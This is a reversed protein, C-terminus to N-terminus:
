ELVDLFKLGFVVGDGQFGNQYSRVYDIRLIKFKGFGLNDLGVSLESYPKHDPTSLTHGGLILTSKLKNLLPIKNMIYGEDNYETHAEFYRNNTSNSYYPLLNFVNLYRASQGIHTQNGNFHKYDMFAINKANLFKGAKVNMGLTGKNELKLDYSLQANIHDFEYKKESAAVAKEYNLLLTPYKENRINFKGDPRSAYKNGFNIRANLTMKVLHHKEFASSTFDDPALPNNSTYLDDNNFYSFNTTNFLPKRQQYSIKGGLNVGNAVNQNYGLAASELNYLKMFNNKFSLSSISNIIKSIPENPNFQQVSSGGTAFLTAYNQNNFRHIITGMVRLRDEAFGYNLKTNISTYIGKTEQNKRNTYRFGTDFNYGQVTNFSLSGLNFLGEYSFTKKATSNSYSYGTLLKVLKFKNGKADISDLYKKSNRVKYISDKKNYDTSEEITLPIPRNSNWFATDKKNSNIEVSTIENTFTKKAFANVFEYNSYVYTYKGAFKIGFAGATIDLSQTNKAWIENNKNYGFNQKLTMVDVFEEKMRYGKIDLDIAYIAWSDEVIYIYGEFVPESDRIAAVKIKNIMQNNADYFTNELKYKYYNFANSAIPSIMQVGFDVTNDYLDYFSSRATNYSYGNDRGSVKSATVVEKLNNPKEFTVKSFTESLSIIGTGTSDLSGNLDGIKQGLIKKPANKLKFIGRSYFDAHFRATKKTNEKRSAIANKIIAIAPNIKPNIVVENLSFSEEIMKVDFTYPLKDTQIAIKQTKFGLFQFVVTQKETKKLNLEYQGMENSTTGNYTDEQFVTVFPLPNGKEDTVTGKIQAYNTISVLFILLLYYKKM